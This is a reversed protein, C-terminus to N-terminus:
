SDVERKEGILAIITRAPIPILRTGKSEPEENVLFGTESSTDIVKRWLMGEPLKPLALEQALPHFNYGVYLFEEAGSYRECYMMGLQRSNYEFGGYWAKDSHYSLDPYGCAKYDSMKFPESMHLISHQKRFAIAQKVFEAMDKGAAYRNWSVWSTENDLCYPNNNGGQSNGFEDGAMLMPTGQALMMLLVANRMQRNRLEVISKKKTEGETGCNWSFNYDSGDRNQEGNEENHKCDYSVLDKLTFGDHNTIYNIVARGPENRRSRFAFQELMGEDGKLIRRMDALFGDNLEALNKRNEKEPQEMEQSFCSFILKTGAFAPDKSLMEAYHEAGMIHFGDIHYEQVWYLLCDLILRVSVEPEFYFDLIVEMKQEHFAKVMQKLELDTNKGSSFSRKPAFYSGPGYGWCNLHDTEEKRMHSLVDNRQACVEDFDYVPMLKVQNIGLEKLYPIKEELGKFTGKHRVGSKKNMTFNRVHLHYMVAEEYSLNPFIDGEWDFVSFPFGCRVPVERGPDKKQGFVERGAVLGAYPDEVIRDDIKFNYEYKKWPLGSVKMSYINGVLPKQPFSLIAEEKESGVQYLVLSPNSGQPVAVSFRIGDKEKVAGLRGLSDAESVSTWINQERGLTRMREKATMEVIFISFKTYWLGPVIFVATQLNEQM